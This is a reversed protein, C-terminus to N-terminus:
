KGKDLKELMKSIVEDAMFKPEKRILSTRVTEGAVFPYENKPNRFQIDLQILYNGLDWMWRDEYTVLVDIKEPMNEKQGSIAVFGKEVLVDRIIEELHRKDGLSHLVFFSKNELKDGNPIIFAENKHIACGTIFFIPLFLLLFKSFKKM